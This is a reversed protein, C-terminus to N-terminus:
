ETEQVKQLVLNYTNEDFWFGAKLILNDLLPRVTKVLKKHKAEILIGLVGVNNISLQDAIHKGKREDILLLGAKLELSLVIAETEGIDLETTLTFIKERDYVSKRKFWDLTNVERCGPLTDKTIEIFVADPIIIEDYLQKLIDINDISSLAIIPSTNSVVTV